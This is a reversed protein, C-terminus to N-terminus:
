RNRETRREGGSKIGERRRREREERYVRDIDGKMVHWGSGSGEKETHERRVDEQREFRTKRESEKTRENKQLTM